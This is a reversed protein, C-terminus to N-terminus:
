NGLLPAITTLARALEVRGMVYLIGWIFSVTTVAALSPAAWVWHRRVRPCAGTAGTRCPPKSAHSRASRLVEGLGRAVRNLEEAGDVRYRGRFGLALCLLYVELVPWTRRPEARLEELRRFFSEGALADGFLELQIPNILWADRAAGGTTLVTEDVLAVLAFRAQEVLPAPCGAASCASGFRDLYHLILKRLAAPEGADGTDRLRLVIHLLDTCRDAIRVGTAQWTDEVSTATTM